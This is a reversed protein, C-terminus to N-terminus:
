QVDSQPGAKILLLYDDLPATTSFDGAQVSQLPASKMNWTDLAEVTYSHAGPLQLKIPGAKMAYVLYVAGPKSLVLTNGGLRNPTMETYPLAEM